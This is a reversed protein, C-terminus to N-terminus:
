ETLRFCSYTQASLLSSPVYPILSVDCLAVSLLRPKTRQASSLSQLVKLLFPTDATTFIVRTVSYTYTNPPLTFIHGACKQELSM